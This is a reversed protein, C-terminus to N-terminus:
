VYTIRIGERTIPRLRVLTSGHWIGQIELVLKTDVMVQEICFETIYRKYVTKGIGLYVKNGYEIGNLKVTNTKPPLM